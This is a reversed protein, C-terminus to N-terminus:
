ATATDWDIFARSCSSLIDMDTNQINTASTPTRFKNKEEIQEKSLSVLGKIEQKQCVHGM